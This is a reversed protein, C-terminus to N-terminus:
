PDREGSVALRSVRSSPAKHRRGSALLSGSSQANGAFYVGDVERLRDPTTEIIDFVKDGFARMFFARM